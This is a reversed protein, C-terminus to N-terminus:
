RNNSKRFEAAILINIVELTYIGERVLNNLILSGREERLTKGYNAGEGLFKGRIVVM